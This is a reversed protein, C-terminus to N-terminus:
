DLLPRDSKQPKTHGTLQKYAEILADSKKLLRDAMERLERSQQLLEEAEDYKTRKTRTVASLYCEKHVPRGLEDYVCEELRCTENCIACRVPKTTQTGDFSM